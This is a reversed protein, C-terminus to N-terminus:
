ERHASAEEAIVWDLLPDKSAQDCRLADITARLERLRDLKLSELEETGVTSQM